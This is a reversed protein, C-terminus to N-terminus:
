EGSEVGKHNFRRVHKIPIGCRTAFLTEAKVGKSAQWGDICLIHLQSAKALMARNYKQWYDFDIPLSYRRAIEHCHVIPSYCWISSSLLWAVYTEALRFRAEMIDVSGSYPSAVYIFSM